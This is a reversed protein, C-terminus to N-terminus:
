KEPQPTRPTGSGPARHHAPELATFTRGDETFWIALPQRLAWKTAEALAEEYTSYRVQPDGPVVSITYANGRKADRAIVVDGHAPSM